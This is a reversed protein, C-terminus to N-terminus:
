AGGRLAEILRLLQRRTCLRMSVSRLGSDTVISTFGTDASVSLWKEDRDIDIGYFGVDGGNDGEHWGGISELWEADIPQDLEKREADRRSLEQKAFRILTTEHQEIEHELRADEDDSMELEWSLDYADRLKVAAERAQEESIM